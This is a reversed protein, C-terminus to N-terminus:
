FKRLRKDFEVLLTIFWGIVNGVVCCEKTRVERGPEEKLHIVHNDFMMTFVDGLVVEWDNCILLGVTWNSTCTDTIMFILFYFRQKFWCNLKLKDSNILYLKSATPYLLLKELFASPWEIFHMNEPFCSQWHIFLLTELFASELM